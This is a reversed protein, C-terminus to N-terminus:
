SPPTTRDRYLVSPRLDAVLTRPDRYTSGHGSGSVLGWHVCSGSCHGGNAVTGVVQGASVRDGKKLETSVPELTTRWGGGVTIAVTPRGAVSGAFSVTGAAPAVVETGPAARLDVGRHGANWRVDPPDFDKVMGVEEWSEGPAPARGVPPVGHASATVAAPSVPDVPTREQASASPGVLSMSLCILM